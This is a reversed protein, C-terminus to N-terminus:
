PANGGPKRIGILADGNNNLLLTLRWQLSMKRRRYTNVVWTAPPAAAACLAVFEAHTMYAVVTSPTIEFREIRLKLLSALRSLWYIIRCALAPQVVQEQILVLGGPKVLRLMEAVARAQNQRAQAWSKGILHHLVFRMMVVDFHAAPLGSDLVSTQLFRIADSAQHDRYETVLEANYLTAADGLAAHLQALLGGGGGGFECITVPRRVRLWEPHAKLWDLLFPVVLSHSWAHETWRTMQDTFQGIVTQEDQSAITKM